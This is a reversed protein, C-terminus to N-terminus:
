VIQIIMRALVYVVFVGFVVGARVAKSINKRTVFAFGIVMLCLVWISVIDIANIATFVGPSVSDRDLFVAPSLSGLEDPMIDASPVFFAKLVMVIQRFILPVFAFATIAFFAKFGDERGLITFASFYIASVILVLLVPGLGSFVMTFTRTTPSEMRQRLQNKAEESMNVARRSHEIVRLPLDPVKTMVTAGSILSSIILLSLPLGARPNKAILFMAEGPAWLVKLLIM